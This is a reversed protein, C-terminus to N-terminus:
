TVKEKLGTLQMSLEWLKKRAKADYAQVIARSERKVDFYKGTVNELQPSVALFIEADAGTEPKGWPTVGSRRVMNTDLYTGPHLSNVTINRDKSQEALDITFMILALKSQCYAETGNFNKELMIDDFHIPAQGASSVNVVRSPAANKLAPLLLHTLLFPALYNVAFRLETGDKGYRKDATGAGANNILVDISKHKELVDNALRRVEDLSSLDAIFGEVNKNKTLRKIEDVVGAVKKENRGHILVHANQKALQLATLKGIGDTSGTIFITQTNMPKM